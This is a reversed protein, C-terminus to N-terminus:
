QNSLVSTKCPAAYYFGQGQLFRSVQKHSIAMRMYPASTLEIQFIM